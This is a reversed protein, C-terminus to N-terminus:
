GRSGRNWRVEQRRGLLGQAALAKRLEENRQLLQRVEQEGSLAEKTLTDRERVLDTLQKRRGVEEGELRLLRLHAEELEQHDRRYEGDLLMLRTRLKKGARSERELQEELDEVLGEGERVRWRMERNKRKLQEERDRSGRWVPAPNDQGQGEWIDELCPLPSSGLGQLLPSGALLRSSLNVRCAPSLAAQRKNVKDEEVEDFLAELSSRLSALEHEDLEQLHHKVQSAMGTKGEEEQKTFISDFDM